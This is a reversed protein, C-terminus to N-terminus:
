PAAFGAAALVQQGAPRTVLTVFAEAEPQLDAGESLVEEAESLAERQGAGVPHGLRVTVAAGAGDGPPQDAAGAAADELDGVAPGPGVGDGLGM